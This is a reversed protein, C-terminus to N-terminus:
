EAHALPVHGRKQANRCQQHYDRRAGARYRGPARQAHIRQHRQPMLLTSCPMQLAPVPQTGAVKAVITPALSHRPLFRGPEVFAALGPVDPFHRPIPAFEHLLLQRRQLQAARAFSFDRFFQRMLELITVLFQARSALALCLSM